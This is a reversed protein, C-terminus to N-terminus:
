KFKRYPTGAIAVVELLIGVVNGACDRALHVSKKATAALALDPAGWGVRRDVKPDDPKKCIHQAFKPEFEEPVTQQLNTWAFPDM